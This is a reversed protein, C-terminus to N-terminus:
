QKVEVFARYVVLRHDGAVISIETEAGVFTVDGFGVDLTQEQGKANWQIRGKGETVIMISPGGLKQHRELETAPVDVKIVAFEPIPPNYLTSFKSEKDFPQPDVFHKSAKSSNYTLTAVLNPVDRLKPTLGARIVNDSNAMCEMCDGYVYAHPEGAGLYIAEGPRLTIDNLLFPCFLGIDGPFQSHLRLVLDVLDQSEGEAVKAGGGKYRSILLRLQHNFELEPATMVAAFVNKLAIKETQSGPTKSSATSLFTQLVTAPILSALEPVLQLFNAIEPLPRFGCLARFPTIALTMEPKHNPDKYIEPHKVHLVEATRKDPHSQISLAKEISLVKFLFPLNGNSADFRQIIPDGILEPHAKLYDALQGGDQTLMSPSKSHTGMWLEAYSTKEDLEFGPLGAATTLQAVKSNKGTKGWDYEQTTPIIKFVSM